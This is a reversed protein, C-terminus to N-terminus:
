EAKLGIEAVVRGILARERRVLDNFAAPGTLMLEWGTKELAQKQAPDIRRARLAVRYDCAHRM